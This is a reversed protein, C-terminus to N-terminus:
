VAPWRLAIEALLTASAAVALMFSIGRIRQRRALEIRLDRMKGFARNRQVELSVVELQLADVREEMM